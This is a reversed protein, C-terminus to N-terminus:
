KSESVISGSDTSPKEESKTTEENICKVPIKDNASPVIPKSVPVLNGACDYTLDFEKEIYYQEVVNNSKIKALISQYENESIEPLLSMKVITNLNMDKDGVLSNVQRNVAQEVISEVPLNM